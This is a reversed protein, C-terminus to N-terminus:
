LSKLHKVNNITMRLLITWDSFKMPPINIKEGKAYNNAFKYALQQIIINNDRM